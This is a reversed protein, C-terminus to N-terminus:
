FVIVMVNKICITTFRCVHEHKRFLDSCLNQNQILICQVHICTCRLIVIDNDKFCVMLHSFRIIGVPDFPIPSLWDNRIDCPTQSCIGFM